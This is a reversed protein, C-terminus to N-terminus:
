PKACRRREGTRPPRPPSRRACCDDASYQSHMPAVGRRPTHRGMSRGLPSGCSVGLASSPSSPQRERQPSGRHMMHDPQASDVPHWVPRLHALRRATPSRALLTGPGRNTELQTVLVAGPRPSSRPRGSKHLCYSPTVLMPPRDCSLEAWCSSWGSCGSVDTM